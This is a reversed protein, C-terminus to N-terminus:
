RSWREVRSEPFSQTNLGTATRVATVWGHLDASFGQEPAFETGPYLLPIFRFSKGDNFEVYDVYLPLFGLPQVILLTNVQQTTELQLGGLFNTDTVANQDVTVKARERFEAGALSIALGLVVIALSFVREYPRKAEGASRHSFISTRQFYWTLGIVLAGLGAAVFRLSPMNLYPLSVAPGDELFPVVILSLWFALQGCHRLGVMVPPRNYAGPVWLGVSGVAFLLAMGVWFPTEQHQIKGIDIATGGMVLLFFAAIWKLLADHFWSRVTEATRPLPQGSAVVAATWNRHEGIAWRTGSAVLAGGIAAVACM